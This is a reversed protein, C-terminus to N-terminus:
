TRVGTGRFAGEIAAYLPKARFGADYPTASHPLHDGRPTFGNLWTYKDCMGWALVDKLQPYAFLIDLYARSYDAVAKDRKALDAPLGSDNVDFETVVLKYGMAVVADLFARWPKEQRAILRGVPENSHVGIHSQVGLADVPVGRKRFGELM